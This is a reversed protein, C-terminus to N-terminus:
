KGTGSIDHDKAGLGLAAIAAGVLVTNMTIPPATQDGQLRAGVQPGLAILVGGLIGALSTKWNRKM